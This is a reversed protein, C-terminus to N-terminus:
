PATTRPPQVDPFYMIGPTPFPQARSLPPTADFILASLISGPIASGYAPDIALTGATGSQLPYGGAAGVTSFTGPTTLRIILPTGAAQSLYATAGHFGLASSTPTGSLPTTSDARVFVDVAGQIPAVNIIRYSITTTTQAPFADAIIWLTQKVKAGVRANGIHVITYYSNAVFTYTTDIMITAGIVPDIATSSSSADLFVRVHRSGAQYGQYNGAGVSRFPTNIFPQSYAIQDVARFDMNFTDSVANIYRIYALPPAPATTDTKACASVGCAFIAGLILRQVRM